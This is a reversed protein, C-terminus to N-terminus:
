KMKVLIFKINILLNFYIIITIFLDKFNIKHNHDSQQYELFHIIQIHHHINNHYNINLRNYHLLNFDQHNYKQLFYHFNKYSFPIHNSNSFYFSIHFNFFQHFDKSLYSYFCDQASKKKNRLM